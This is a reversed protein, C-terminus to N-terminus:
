SPCHVSSPRAIPSGALELFAPTHVRVLWDTAMWARRTEDAETTKTGICKAAYPKLKQRFADDVSDNWSRMFARDGAVRLRPFREV